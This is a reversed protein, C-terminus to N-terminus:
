HAAAGGKRPVDRAAVYKGEAGRPADQVPDKISEGLEQRAQKIMGMRKLALRVMRGKQETSLGALARELEAPEDVRVQLLGAKQLLSLWKQRLEELAQTARVRTAQHTFKGDRIRALQTMSVEMAMAQEVFLSSEGKRALVTLYRDGMFKLADRVIRERVGLRQAIQDPRRGDARLRVIRRYLGM